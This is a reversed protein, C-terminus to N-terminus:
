QSFDPISNGSNMSYSAYASNTAGMANLYASTKAIKKQYEDLAAQNQYGIARLNYNYALTAKDLTAMRVSEALVDMPSGADTQVGSAGYSAIMSGIKREQSRVLAASAAAGQQQAIVANQRAIDANYDLAQSEVQGQFLAGLAQLGAQAGQAAAAEEGAM